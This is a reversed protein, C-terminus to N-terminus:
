TFTGVPPDAALAAQPIVLLVAVSAVFVCVRATRRM